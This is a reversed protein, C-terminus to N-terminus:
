WRTIKKFFFVSKWYDRESGRMVTETDRPEGTIM